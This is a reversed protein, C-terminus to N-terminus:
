QTGAGRGPITVTQTVLQAIPCDGIHAAEFRLQQLALAVPDRYGTDPSDSGVGAFGGLLRATGGVVRGRADVVM